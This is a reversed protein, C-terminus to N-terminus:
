KPKEAARGVAEKKRMNAALAIGFVAIAFLVTATILWVDNTSM